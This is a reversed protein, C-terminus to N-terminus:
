LEEVLKGFVRRIRVQRREPQAYYAVVNLHPLRERLWRGYEGKPGFAIQM